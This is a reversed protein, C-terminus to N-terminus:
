HLEPVEGVITLVITLRHLEREQAYDAVAYHQVCRNDWVAVDGPSWRHRFTFNPETAHQCLWGLLGSSEEVTMGEFQTTYFSNVYLARRGTEPITRV